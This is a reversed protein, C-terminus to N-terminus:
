ADFNLCNGVETGIEGGGTEGEENKARVGPGWWASRKSEGIRSDDPTLLYQMRKRIHMRITHDDILM